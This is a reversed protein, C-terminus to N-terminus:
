EKPRIFRIIARRDKKEPRGRTMNRPGPAARLQRATEERQRASEPLEEYLLSAQSAPGRQTELARVVISWEFPGRRIQLRDGVRVPRAPKARAGNVHVKGGSVAAGALARTKFFRAAWLWKDLRVPQQRLDDLM